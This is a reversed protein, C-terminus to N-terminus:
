KNLKKLNILKSEIFIILACVGGHAIVCVFTWLLKHPMLKAIEWAPGFWAGNYIFMYDQKFINDFIFVPIAYIIFVLFGGIFDKFKPKYYGSVLMIIPTILLVFHYLFTHLGLFSFVSEASFFFNIFGGIMSISCLFGNCANKVKENKCFLSLPMAFLYITCTWLPLEMRDLGLNNATVFANFFIYKILDISVAFLWFFILAKRTGKENNRLKIPLFVILFVFVLILIIKELKLEYPGPRNLWDEVAFFSLFDNM